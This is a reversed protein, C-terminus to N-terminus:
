ETFVKEISQFTSYNPCNEVESQWFNLQIKFNIEELKQALKFMTSFDDVLELDLNNINKNSISDFHNDYFTNLQQHIELKADLCDCPDNLKNVDINEISNCSFFLPIILLILLKKM